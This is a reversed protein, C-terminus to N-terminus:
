HMAAFIKEALAVSIGPVKHLEEVSARKIEALGGFHRLLERRRKAGVGPITELTSTNRAKDRRQRHGTIAFRHAEDRIQQIFHLALGDAPLQLPARDCFHLTELGAKRGEGKAVGILLIGQIQLDELVHEAQTLQGKGGDVLLIDPLKAEDSKLRTYRRLLAQRMAAYDDGPTIGSINFRRYDSKIPGQEGFVVCSAVTAEGMSHSIDFCELRQPLMDLTLAQQLAYV